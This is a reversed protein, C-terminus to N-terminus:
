EKRNRIKLTIKERKRKLNARNADWSIGKSRETGSNGNRNFLNGIRFYSVARIWIPRRAIRGTENVGSGDINV